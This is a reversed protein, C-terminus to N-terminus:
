SDIGMLENLAKLFPQMGGSSKYHELKGLEMSKLTSTLQSTTCSLACRMETLRVALETQHNDMLKENIVVLLPKKLTLVELCTGAGAHSIVFDSQEVYSTINPKTKFIDLQILSNNFAKISPIDGNGIQLVLKRCGLNELVNITDPECICKILDDFQTTGVTVFISKIEKDKTM